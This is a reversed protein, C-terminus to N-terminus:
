HAYHLEEVEKLLRYVQRPSIGEARALLDVAKAKAAPINNCAAVIRTSYQNRRWAKWGAPDDYKCQPLPCRLCSPSVQCGTDAPSGTQPDVIIPNRGVNTM